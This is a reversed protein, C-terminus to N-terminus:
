ESRHPMTVLGRHDAEIYTRIKEPITSRKVFTVTLMEFEGVFLEVVPGDPNVEFQTEGGSCRAFRGHLTLKKNCHRCIGRRPDEYPIMFVWGARPDDYGPSKYAREILAGATALVKGDVIVPAKLRLRLERVLDLPPQPKNYLFEQIEETTM